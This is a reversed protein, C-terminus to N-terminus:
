LHYGGVQFVTNAVQRGIEKPNIEFPQLLINIVRKHLKRQFGEMFSDIAEHAANKAKNLALYLFLQM